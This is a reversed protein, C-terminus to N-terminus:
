LTQAVITWGRREERVSTELDLMSAQSIPIGIEEAMNHSFDINKIKSFTKTFTKLHKNITIKLEGLKRSKRSQM